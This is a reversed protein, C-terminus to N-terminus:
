SKSVNKQSYGQYVCMYLNFANFSVNLVNYVDCFSSYRVHGFELFYLVIIIIYNHICYLFNTYDPRSYASM